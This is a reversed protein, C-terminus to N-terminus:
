GVTDPNYCRHIAQRGLPTIHQRYLAYECCHHYPCAPEATSMAHKLLEKHAPLHLASLMDLTPWSLAAILVTRRLLGAHMRSRFAVPVTPQPALLIVAGM